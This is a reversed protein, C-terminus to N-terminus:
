MFIESKEAKFFSEYTHLRTALYVAAELWSNWKTSVPVPPLRVDALSIAERLFSLFRSKRGPKKFLSSKVMSILTSVHQFDSSKKFVDFALNVIHALCLVHTSKPFLPTQIQKSYAASDSVVARVRDFPIEVGSM